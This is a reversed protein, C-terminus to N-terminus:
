KRLSGFCERFPSLFIEFKHCVESHTQSLKFRSKTSEERMVCWSQQNRVVIKKNARQGLTQVVRLPQHGFQPYQVLLHYTDVPFAVQHQSKRYTLRFAIQVMM